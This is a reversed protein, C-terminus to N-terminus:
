KRKNANKTRRAGAVKRNKRHNQARSQKSTASIPFTKQQFKKFLKIPKKNRFFRQHNLSRRWKMPKLLKVSWLRFLTKMSNHLIWILPSMSKISHLNSNNSNEWINNKNKMASAWINPKQKSNEKLRNNRKWINKFIETFPKTAFLSWLMKFIWLLWISRLMKISIFSNLINIPTIEMGSKSRKWSRSQWIIRFNKIQSSIDKPYNISSSLGGLGKRIFNNFNLM